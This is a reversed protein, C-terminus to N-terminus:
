LNLDELNFGSGPRDFVQVALDEERKPFVLVPCPAVRVVARMSSGLIAVRIPGAQGEMVILDSQSECAQQCISDVFTTASSDVKFDCNVDQSKAWEAWSEARKLQQDTKSEMFDEIDVMEGDAGYIAPFYGTDMVGRPPASVLHFIRVMAGMQKALAITKYFLRRSRDGFDTPFLIRSLHSESKLGGGMVMVPIASRALLTEAFSGFFFRDLGQRGHSSVVILDALQQKAYSLLSEVSATITALPEILIKPGLVFPFGSKLLTAEMQRRINQRTEELWDASYDLQWAESAAVLVFVPEIQVFAKEQFNSLVRAANAQLREEDEFADFAWIIKKITGQQLM